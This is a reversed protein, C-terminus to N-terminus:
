ASWVSLGMASQFPRHGPHLDLPRNGEPFERASHPPFHVRIVHQSQGTLHGIAKAQRTEREKDKNGGEDAGQWKRVKPRFKQVPDNEIQRRSRLMKNKVDDDPHGMVM